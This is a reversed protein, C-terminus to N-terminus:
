VGSIMFLDFDLCAKLFTVSRFKNKYNQPDIVKTVVQLTEFDPSILQMHLGNSHEEFVLVPNSSIKSMVGIDAKDGWFSTSWNGFLLKGKRQADSIGKKWSAAVELHLDGITHLITSCSHCWQKLLNSAPSSLKGYKTGFVSKFHGSLTNWMAKRSNYAEPVETGDLYKSYNHVFVLTHYFQSSEIDQLTLEDFSSLQSCENGMLKMFEGCQERQRAAEGYLFYDYAPTNITFQSLEGNATLKSWAFSSHLCGGDGYVSGKTVLSSIDYMKRLKVGASSGMEVVPPTPPLLTPAARSSIDASAM